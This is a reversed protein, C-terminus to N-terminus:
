YNWNENNIIKPNVTLAEIILYRVKFSNGSLTYPYKNNITKIVIFAKYGKHFMQRVEISIIDNFNITNQRFMTFFTVTNGKLIYSPMYKYIFSEKENLSFLKEIDNISLTRIFELYRKFMNNIMFIFPSVLLSLFGFMIFSYLFSDNMRSDYSEKDLNKFSLTENVTFVYFGLPLVIALFVFLSIFIIRRINTNKEYEKMKNTQIESM